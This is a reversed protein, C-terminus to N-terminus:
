LADASNPVGSCAGPGGHGSRDSRWDDNVEKSLVGPIKTRM